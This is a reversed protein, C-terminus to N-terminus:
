IGYIADSLQMLMLEICKADEVLTPISPTGTELMIQKVHEDCDFDMYAGQVADALTSADKGCAYFYFDEGAPSGQNFEIGASDRAASWGLQEARAIIEEVTKAPEKPRTRERDKLQELADKYEQTNVIDVVHKAGGNMGDKKLCTVKLISSGCFVLDACYEALDRIPYPDGPTTEVYHMGTDIHVLYLDGVIKTAM